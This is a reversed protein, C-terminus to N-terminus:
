PTTPTTTKTSDIAIKKKKYQNKQIPDPKTYGINQSIKQKIVVADNLVFPLPMSNTPRKDIHLDKNQMLDFSSEMLDMDLVKSAQISFQLELPIQHVVYYSIIKKGHRPYIGKTTGNLLVGNAMLHHFELEENAFIDYRNVLRNPTIRIKLFRNKGVISDQVFAISPKSLNIKTAEKIYTFDSNYKSYLPLHNFETAIKPNKGLYKQTWDDLNQDYTTYYAKNHDADFIYLLSNPKAIGYAFDANVHAQIGFVISFVLLIGSLIGKHKTNHFIPLMLGFIFVVLIVSVYLMKLGLGVPFMYVFPALIILTPISVLINFFRNTRQTFVFYTLMLIGSIAPLILFGAGQLQFAIGLNIVIWIFLPAIYLSMYNKEVSKKHYGYFCISLSLLIFSLMYDHGNYTFGQPIQKYNSYIELLFKWGFYTILGCTLLCVFYFLFGKIIEDLYLLRKSLGLFIILIFFAMTAIAMPKVWEFPYSIFAFPTNFYVDDTTAALNELPANSFYNLLPVLYSGQHTISKENVHFFDDQQTHYNFHDDIFAFNFGQVGGQERFVTLDTDNPLMKYISYMLSNAVPYSPNSATFAKVMQQNGQNVEMLMYSPGSTGRAEFNIVLGVKKLLPNKEVFLAAGNLGLEEADSILIYIDNTHKKQNHIFARIGELITAVGSADDSAGHSFSHPASDYHALLLLAKQNTTGKLQAIINKSQTLTGKETLSFGTEFAPNLGLKQLETYIYNAVEDHNESGVYHPKEAIQEIHKLARTTSFESLAENKSTISPLMTFYIWGLIIFIGVISIFVTQLKKM